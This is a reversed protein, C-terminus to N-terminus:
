LGQTGERLRTKFKSSVQSIVSHAIKDKAHIIFANRPNFEVMRIIEMTRQILILIRFITQRTSNLEM